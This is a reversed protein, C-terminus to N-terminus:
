TQAPPRSMVVRSVPNEVRGHCPKCLVQINSEVFEGEPWERVPIRHHLDRGPKRCLECSAPHQELYKRRWTRWVKRLLRVKVSPTTGGKWNPNNAGAVDPRKIGRKAAGINARHEASRPPKPKGILAANQCARSCFQRIAARYPYEFFESGCAICVCRITGKTPM